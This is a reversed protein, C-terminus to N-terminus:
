NAIAVADPLLNSPLCSKWTELYFLVFYLLNFVRIESHVGDSDQRAVCLWDQVTQRFFFEHEDIMVNTKLRKFVFANAIGVM